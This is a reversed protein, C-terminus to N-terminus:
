EFLFYLSCQAPAYGQEAAKLFWEICTKNDRYHAKGFQYQASPVGREADEGYLLFAEQIAKAVEKDREIIENDIEEKTMEKTPKAKTPKLKSELGKIKEETNVYNYFAWLGICIGILRNRLM